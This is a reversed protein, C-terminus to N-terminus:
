YHYQYIESITFKLKMLDHLNVNRDLFFIYLEIMLKYRVILIFFKEKKFTTM